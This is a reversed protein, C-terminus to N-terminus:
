LEFRLVGAAFTAQAEQTRNGFQNCFIKARDVIACNKLANELDIVKYHM